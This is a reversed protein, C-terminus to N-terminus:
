SSQLLFHANLSFGTEGKVTYLNQTFYRYIYKCFRYLYPVLLLRMFRRGKRGRIITTARTNPAHAGAAVGAGVMAGFAVSVETGVEM